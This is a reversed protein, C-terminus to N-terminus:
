AEAPAPASVEVCGPGDPGCDVIRDERRITIPVNKGFYDLLISYVPEKTDLLTPAKWVM